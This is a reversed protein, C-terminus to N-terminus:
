PRFVKIVLGDIMRYHRNNATVLPEGLSMATAAILAGALQLGHSLAYSEVLFVARSSIDENLPQVSAQWFVLSQRLANFEATSRVGQVLEIYTVASLAFGMANDLLSAAKENGRFNWILVDTDILM